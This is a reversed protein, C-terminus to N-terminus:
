MFPYHLEFRRQKFLAQSNLHRDARWVTQLGSFQERIGSSDVGKQPQRSECPIADRLEQVHKLGRVRAPRRYKM